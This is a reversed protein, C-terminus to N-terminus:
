CRTAVPVSYGEFSSLCVQPTSIFNWNVDEDKLLSLCLAPTYIKPDDSHNTGAELVAVQIQPNQSLRCALALGATGGGVIIFDFSEAM